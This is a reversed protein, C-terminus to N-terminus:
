LLLQGKENGRLDSFGSNRIKKRGEPGSHGFFVLHVVRDSSNEDVYQTVGGKGAVAREGGSILAKSILEGHYVEPFQSIVYFDSRVPVAMRYNVPTTINSSIIM